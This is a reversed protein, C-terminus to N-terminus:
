KASIEKRKKESKKTTSRESSKELTTCNKKQKDEEINKLTARGIGKINLLEDLSKISNSERYSLLSQLKKPGLGKICGLTKAPSTEVMSASMAWTLSTTVMFVSVISKLM